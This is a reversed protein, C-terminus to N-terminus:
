FHLCSQNLALLFYPPCIVKYSCVKSSVTQALHATFSESAMQPDVACSGAFFITRIIAGCRREADTVPIAHWIYVTKM